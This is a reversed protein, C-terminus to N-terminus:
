ATPRVSSVATNYAATQLSKSKFVPYLGLKLVSSWCSSVWCMHLHLFIYFSFYEQAFYSEEMIHDRM